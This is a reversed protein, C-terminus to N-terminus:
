FILDIKISKKYCGNWYKIWVKLLSTNYKLKNELNICSNKLNRIIKAIGLSDQLNIYLVFRYYSSDSHIFM